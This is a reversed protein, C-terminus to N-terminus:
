AKRNVESDIVGVTASTALWLLPWEPVPTFVATVGIVAGSVWFGTCWICTPLYALRSNWGEVEWLRQRQLEDAAHKDVWRTEWHFQWKEVLDSAIKSHVIVWSVFYSALMVLVLTQGSM